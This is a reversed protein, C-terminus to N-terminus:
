ADINGDGSCSSRNRETLRRAMALLRYEYQKKLKRRLHKMTDAAIEVAEHVLTSSRAEIVTMREDVEQKTVM